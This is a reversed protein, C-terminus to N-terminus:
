SGKQTNRSENLYVMEEMTFMGMGQVFAGEIQGVDVAPNISKGVDMVIDTKLVKFDGTLVDIEVLSCGAGFTFYCFPTGVCVDSSYIIYKATLSSHLIYIGKATVWDFKLNEIKCFGQASLNIRDM